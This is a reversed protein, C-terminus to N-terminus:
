SFHVYLGLYLVNFYTHNLSLLLVTEFILVLVLVFVLAPAGSFVVILVRM